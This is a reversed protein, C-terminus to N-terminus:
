PRHQTSSAGGYVTANIPRPTPRPARTSPFPTKPLEALELGSKEIALRCQDYIYQGWTTSDCGMALLVDEVHRLSSAPHPAGLAHPVAHPGALEAVPKSRLDGPLEANMKLLHDTHFSALEKRQAWYLRRLTIDENESDTVDLMVFRNQRVPNKNFFDLQREQVQALKVIWSRIDADSNGTWTEVDSPTGYWGQACSASTGQPTCGGNIRIQKIMDFRSLVWDRLPRVNMVFRSHDFTDYLWEYDAHDGNDMFVRHTNWIPDDPNHQFSARWWELSEDCKNHCPNWGLQQYYQEMSTTGAKNAGIFFVLDSTTLELNKPDSQGEAAGQGGAGDTAGSGGATPASPAEMGLPLCECKCAIYDVATHFGGPCALGDCASSCASVVDVQAAELSVTSNTSNSSHARYLRMDHTGPTWGAAVSLVLAAAVAM